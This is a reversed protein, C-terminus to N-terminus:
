NLMFQALRFPVTVLRAMSPQVAMDHGNVKARYGNIFMRPTELVAPGGLGSIEITLPIWRIVKEVKAGTKQLFEYHAFDSIVNM